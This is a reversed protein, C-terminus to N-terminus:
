KGQFQTRIFTVLESIEAATLKDKFAPMAEDGDAIQRTLREDTHELAHGKTLSPVRLTKNDIKVERAEGREGHCAICHKEFNARAASPTANAAPSAGVSPPTRVTESGANGCASILTLALTVLGVKAAKMSMDGLKMEYFM